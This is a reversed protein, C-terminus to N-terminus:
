LLAATGSVTQNEEVHFPSEKEEQICTSGKTNQKLPKQKKHSKKTQKTELCWLLTLEGLSVTRQSNGIDKRVEFFDNQIIIWLINKKYSMAEHETKPFM